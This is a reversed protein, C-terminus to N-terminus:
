PEYWIIRDSATKEFNRLDGLTKLQITFKKFESEDKFHYFDCDSVKLRNWDNDSFIRVITPLETPLIRWWLRFETEADEKSMMRCKKSIPTEEAKWQLKNAVKNCYYHGVTASFFEKIALLSGVIGLLFLFIFLLSIFIHEM